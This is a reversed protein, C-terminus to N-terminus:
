GIIQEPLIFHRGINYFPDDAREDPTGEYVKAIGYEHKVNNTQEYLLVWTATLYGEM